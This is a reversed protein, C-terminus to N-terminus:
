PLLSGKGKAAGTQFGDVAKFGKVENKFIRPEDPPADKMAYKDLQRAVSVVVEKGILEDPDPVEFDGSSVNYGTAKLLQTLSYLAGDFLMVNTWFNRGEYEGDQSCKLTLKWYPKGPNKSESGCEADEIEYVTAKYWGTPVPTYVRAESSAEQDTFNVHLGSM